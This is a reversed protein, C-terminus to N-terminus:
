ANVKNQPRGNQWCKLNDAVIGVLRSRADRSAWGIHPTLVINKAHILPCDDEPPEKTLVDLGAGGIVGNNLADALDQENIIGGRSTNILFATNKMKSLLDRNVLERTENNLACHLSVVDSREFLEELRVQEDGEPLEKKNKSYVLIKMGLARGLNAVTRGINGYGVIGLTKGFLEFMPHSSYNIAISKQYCDRKILESHAYVHNCLELLLAFAQQAVTEVCYFPVNCVTIGFETAADTDVANYGTAFLGIYKLKPLSKMVDRSMVIRNIIVADADKARETVLEAPTDDYITLNGLTELPEWSIDGPNTTKGDLIVINM